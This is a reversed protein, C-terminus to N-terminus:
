SIRRNVIAVYKEIIRRAISTAAGAQEKAQPIVFRGLGGQVPAVANLARIMGRGQPTLGKKQKGINRTGALEMIEFGASDGRSRFSMSVVPFFGRKKARKGLPTLTRGSVSSWSYTESAVSKSFGSLPSQKPIGAQLKSLIPKLDDRMEKQLAKRLGPDVNRLEALLVKLDSAKVTFEAPMIEIRGGAGSVV